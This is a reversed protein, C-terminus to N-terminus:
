QLHPRNKEAEQFSKEDDKCITKVLLGMLNHQEVLHKLQGIEQNDVSSKICSKSPNIEHNNDMEIDMTAKDNNNKDIESDSNDEWSEYDEDEAQTESMDKCFYECITSILDVSILKSEIAKEFTKLFCKDDDSSEKDSSDM